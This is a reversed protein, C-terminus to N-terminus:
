VEIYCRVADIDKIQLAQTKFQPIVGNDRNFFLEVIIKGDLYHLVTERLAENGSLGAFAQELQPTLQARPPLHMCPNKVEDDEPDVHVTVDTIGDVDERLRLAVNQAIHHGESVSLREEVLIHVDILIHGAMSRTRLQHLAVVGPTQSILTSMEKVTEQSVSTDILEMTSDFGLSWGMKVIMLGVIIAAVSDLHHFGVFSGCIGILVVLSSIADSRHHWANAIILDSKIEEGIRKTYLYLGENIFVSIIAIVFVLYSIPLYHSVFLEAVGDYIVAVGIIALFLSLFVTAATEIRRHGYPHDEDADKGGLKAAVIVLFDTLLDSLSHVGDAFLAGSHGIYGVLMKFFALIANFMAGILTVNRALKYRTNNNM